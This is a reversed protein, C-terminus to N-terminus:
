RVLLQAQITIHLAVYFFEAAVLPGDPRAIVFGFELLRGLHFRFLQAGHALHQVEVLFTQIMEISKKFQSNKIKALM